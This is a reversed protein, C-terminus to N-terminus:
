DFMFRLEMSMRDIESSVAEYVGPFTSYPGGMVLCPIYHLKGNTKCAREVERRILELNWDEKDLVGNDLDGMFSIKGGYKKLLENVNNTSMCGQFVDIGMDIMDPVLTAAYSDSHHVVVEIGNNKYYKYIDIYAPKIFEQFMEPSLFTSNQTGWDDHHFLADPKWHRIVQEAFKLEYETDYKILDHMLAPEEYFNIMCQEMGMLYHLREFVGTGYMVTAFFENRDIEGAMKASEEWASDPFDTRPMQVLDKWQRIDPVVTYADGHLPYPGPQGEGYYVTVGWGVKVPPGGPVPKPFAGNIPDASLLSLAEFQNVFRDPNGGRITELFNQRKTLM